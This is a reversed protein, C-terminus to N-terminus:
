YHGSKKPGRKKGSRKSSGSYVEPFEASVEYITSLIHDLSDYGRYTQGVKLYEIVPALRPVWKYSVFAGQRDQGVLLTNTKKLLTFSTCAAM